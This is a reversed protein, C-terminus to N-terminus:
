ASARNHQVSRTVIMLTDQRVIFNAGSSHPGGLDPNRHGHTEEYIDRNTIENITVTSTMGDLNGMRTEISALEDDALGLLANVEAQTVVGDALAAIWQYQTIAGSALAANLPDIAALRDLAELRATIEAATLNGTAIELVLAVREQEVMNDSILKLGEKFLDGSAKAEDFASAVDNIATQLPASVDIVEQEAGAIDKYLQIFREEEPYLKTAFDYLGQNKDTLYETAEAEDMIGKQLNFLVENYEENTVTGSAYSMNLLDVASRLNKDQEANTIVVNMLDTLAPIVANGITRSFGLWADQLNDAAVEYERSAAIADETAILSDGIGAAADRFGDGGLALLPILTQYGRGLLKVAKEAFASKNTTNVYEDALDAIADISPTIGQKNMFALSTRIENISIGWDDGVQVIRSIEEAGLGTVQTMERIEKNYAVTETVAKKTFDVAKGIAIGAMGIAGAAGLSFGTLSQFAGSLKQGAGSLGGMSKNVTNIKSSANDVANLLIKVEPNAM